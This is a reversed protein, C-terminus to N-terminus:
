QSAAFRSVGLRLGGRRADTWGHALLLPRHGRPVSRGRLTPTSFDLLDTEDSIGSAHADSLQEVQLRDFGSIWLFGHGNRSRPVTRKLLGSREVM